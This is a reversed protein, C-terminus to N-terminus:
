RTLYGEIITYDRGLTEPSLFPMVQLPKFTKFM